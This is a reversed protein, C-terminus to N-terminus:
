DSVKLSPAVSLVTYSLFIKWVFSINFFLLLKRAGEINANKLAPVQLLATGIGLIIFAEIFSILIKSPEYWQLALLSPILIGNFEWGYVLNLRSAVFATTLLIIYAKPSSLISATIDEFM